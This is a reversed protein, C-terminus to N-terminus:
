SIVVQGEPHSTQLTAIVQVISGNIVSRIETVRHSIVVRIWHLVAM